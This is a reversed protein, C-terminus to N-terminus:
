RALGLYEQSWRLIRQDTDAFGLFTNCKHHLLGRVMGTTHCHDVYPNRKDDPKVLSEKCIPCVGNQKDMLEIYEEETIGYLKKVSRLRDKYKATDTQWYEKLYKSQKERFESNEKVFKKVVKRSCKKCYNQHEKRGRRNRKFFRDVPKEQKCRGCKKIM